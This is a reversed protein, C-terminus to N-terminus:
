PKLFEYSYKHLKNYINLPEELMSLLIISPIALSITVYALYAPQISILYNALFPSIGSILAAPISYFIAYNTCRSKSPLIEAVITPAVSFYAGCSIALLIAIVLTNFNATNQFSGFFSVSLTSTILISHSIISKRGIKDSLFGFIPISIIVFFSMIYKIYEFIALSGAQKKLYDNGIILITYNIFTGFSVIFFMSVFLIKHNLVFSITEKFINKEEELCYNELLFDITENTKKRVWYGFFGFGLSLVFLIRWLNGSFDTNKMHFCYLSTVFVALLGGLQQGFCCFSSLLGRNKPSSHELLFSISTVQEGGLSVGQLFRLFVLSLTSLVGIKEYSPILGIIGTAIGSILISTELSLKRGKTDSLYGFVLAGLPRSLIATSIFILQTFLFANGSKNDFFYHSIHNSLLQFIIYDYVEFCNGFTACIVLRLKNM